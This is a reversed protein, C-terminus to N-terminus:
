EPDSRPGRRRFLAWIAVATVIAALLWRYPIGAGCDPTAQSRISGLGSPDFIPPLCQTHLLIEDHMVNWLLGVEPMYHSIMLFSVTAIAIALIGVTSPRASRIKELARKVEDPGWDLEM